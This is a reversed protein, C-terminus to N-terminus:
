YPARKDGFLKILNDPSVNNQSLFNEYSNYSQIQSIKLADYFADGDLLDIKYGKETYDHSVTVAGSRYKSTTLFVGNRMNNLVLAGVLSRIQEAEIKNITRKVQVGITKNDKKLIVDIGDDGSFATVLADFGLNRFVSGVTQEFLKPHCTFRSEYKALLYKKVEELPTTIDQLDFNKLVGVMGYDYIYWCDKGSLNLIKFMGWWGCAPCFYVKLRHEEHTFYSGSNRTYNPLLNENHLLKLKTSCYNCVPNANLKLAARYLENLGKTDRACESYHFISM